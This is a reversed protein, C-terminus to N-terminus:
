APPPSTPRATQRSATLWHLVEALLRTMEVPKTLFGNMGAEECARRDQAFASATLALVPVGSSAGDARLARTVAPGDLGPMQVDLLILDYVEARACALAQLGDSAAHVTLGAGQLMDVVIDMNVPNDEALLIRAGAHQLRIQQVVAQALTAWATPTEPMPGQGLPWRATLWFRSGGGPRAQAGVQGGMLQALRRNIALGLGTGGKHRVTGADAQEFPQFLRDIQDSALGVGTDDVTFRLLPLHGRDDLREARLVVEGEETFKVANGAFNLLVQRLRTPDGHLWLPVDADAQAALRLGKALAAAEVLSRVEDLLVDLRFDTRDLQAHGAEIKSLDLVDDIIALLHQVAVAMQDLRSVQSPDSCSLRLLQSLGMVANMPTRIEHSMHALFDSKAQNAADAQARAAVLEATRNAKLRELETRQRALEEALAIRARIDRFVLVVGVGEGGADLITAACSSIPCEGDGCALLLTDGGPLAAVHPNDILAQAPNAIAARSRLDVTCFVKRLPLGIALTAPWGTLDEAARNMRTIRGIADNTIVADGMSQLTNVLSAETLRLLNTALDTSVASAPLPAPDPLHPLGASM